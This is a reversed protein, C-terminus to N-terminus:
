GVGSHLLFPSVSSSTRCKVSSVTFSMMAMPKSGAFVNMKVFKPSMPCSYGTTHVIWRWRVHLVTAWVKPTSMDSETARRENGALSHAPHSRRRTRNGGAAAESAM